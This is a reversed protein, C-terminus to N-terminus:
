AHEGAPTAPSSSPPLAAEGERLHKLQAKTIVGAKDARAAGISTTSHSPVGTVYAIEEQTLAAGNVRAERLALFIRDRYAVFNPARCLRMTKVNPEFARILEEEDLGLVRMVLQVHAQQLEIGRQSNPNVLM